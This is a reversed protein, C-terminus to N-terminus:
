SARDWKLLGDKEADVPGFVKFCQEEDFWALPIGTREVKHLPPPNLRSDGSKIQKSEQRIKPSFGSHSTTVNAAHFKPALFVIGATSSLIIEASPTQVMSKGIIIAGEAHGLFVIPRNPTDKRVESLCRLLEATLLGLDEMNPVIPPYEFWM